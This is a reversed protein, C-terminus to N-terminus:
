KALEQSAARERQLRALRGGGASLFMGVIATIVALFPPFSGLSVKAHTGVIAHVILLAAGYFAGGFFGRDAGGWGDRHEFGAVFAGIGAVVAVVWYAPSSAGILVGQLAGVLAPIVGGLIVQIHRPRDRLLIPSYTPM